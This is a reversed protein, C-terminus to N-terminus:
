GPLASARTLRAFRVGKLGGIRTALKRIEAPRGKLILTELCHDHDLHVHTTCLVNLRRDHQLDILRDTLGRRHHDYSIVLVGVVPSRGGEWREAVLRERILDRVLESRSPYGQRTFRADLDDLLRRPLSVSFRVLEDAPV